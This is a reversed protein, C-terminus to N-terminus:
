FKDFLVCKKGCFKDQNVCKKGCFKATWFGIQTFNKVNEIHTDYVHAGLGREVIGVQMAAFLQQFTERM